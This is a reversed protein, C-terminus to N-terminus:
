IMRAKEFKPKIMKWILEAYPKGDIMKFMVGKNACPKVSQEMIYIALQKRSMQERFDVDLYKWNWFEITEFETQLQHIGEKAWDFLEDVEIHSLIQTKTMGMRLMEWISTTSLNTVVAHLKIYDEFKIKVRFGNSFRIVFGESNELNLEKLQKLSSVGKYTQVVRYGNGEYYHRSLPAEKGTQTHYKALLILGEFDGYDVVIRNKGGM